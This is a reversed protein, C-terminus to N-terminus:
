LVYPNEGFLVIQSPNMYVNRLNRNITVHDCDDGSYRLGRLSKTKYLALGGFCSQVKVLDEGRNFNMLNLEEGPHPAGKERGLRRYALTDYYLRQVQGDHQRYMLSNSGICDIEQTEIFYLSQALGDYSFGDIDFDMVIVYDTDFDSLCCNRYYAMDKYRALSEVSGHFDAKLTESIIVDNKSQHRTLVKLTDDTNDNTYIVWKLKTYKKLTELRQLNHQLKEQINRALGIVTFSLSPMLNYGRQVQGNYISRKTRDQIQWLDEPFRTALNIFNM